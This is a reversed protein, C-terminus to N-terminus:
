AITPSPSGEAINRCGCVEGFREPLEGHSRVANAEVHFARHPHGIGDVASQNADGLAAAKQLFAFSTSDSHKGAHQPTVVAAREECADRGCEMLGLSGRVM